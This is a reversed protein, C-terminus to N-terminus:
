KREGKKLEKEKETKVKKIMRHIKITIKVSVRKSKLNKLLVNKVM